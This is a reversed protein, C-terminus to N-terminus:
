RGGRRRGARRPFQYGGIAIDDRYKDAVLEVLQADDYMQLLRQSENRSVGAAGLSSWHTTPILSPSWGLMGLIHLLDEQLTEYRGVFEYPMHRTDCRESHPKWHPNMESANQRVVWRVFQGFTIRQGRALGFLARIDEQMNRAQRDRVKTGRDIKSLFASALRDWPNRVFTFSVYRKRECLRARRPVNRPLSLPYHEVSKRAAPGTGELVPCAYPFCRPLFHLHPTLKNRLIQYWTTTGVKANPCWIMGHEPAVVLMTNTLLRQCQFPPLFASADTM